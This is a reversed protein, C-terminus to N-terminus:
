LLFFLKKTDSTTLFEMGVGSRLVDSISFINKQCTVNQPSILIEPIEDQLFFGDRTELVAQEINPEGHTM